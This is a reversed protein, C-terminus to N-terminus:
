KEYMRYTWTSFFRKHVFYHNDKHSVKWQVTHMVGREEKLVNKGTSVCTHKYLPFAAADTAKLALKHRDTQAQPQLHLLNRCLPNTTHKWHELPPKNVCCWAYRRGWIPSPTALLSNRMNTNLLLSTPTYNRFSTPSWCPLTTHLVSPQSIEQHTSQLWLSLKLHGHLLFVDAEIHEVGVETLCPEHKQCLKSVTISRIIRVYSMTHRMGAWM